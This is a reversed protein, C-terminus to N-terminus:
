LTRRRSRHRWRQEHAPASEMPSASAAHWTAYRRALPAASLGHAFVSLAVTVTIVTVLTSTHPL